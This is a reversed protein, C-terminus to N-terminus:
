RGLEEALPFPGATRGAQTASNTAGHPKYAPIPEPDCAVVPHPTNNWCTGTQEWRMPATIHLYYNVEAGVEIWGDNDPLRVARRLTPDEGFRSVARIHPGPDADIDPRWWQGTLPPETDLHCDCKM